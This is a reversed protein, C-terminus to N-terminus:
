ATIAKLRAHLLKNTLRQSLAEMILVPDKGAHLLKLARGLEDRRAEEPSGCPRRASFRKADMAGNLRWARRVTQHMDIGAILFM